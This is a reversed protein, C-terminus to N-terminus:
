VSCSYKVQNGKTNLASVLDKINQCKAANVIMQANFDAAGPATHKYDTPFWNKSKINNEGLKEWQRAIYNYHDIFPIKMEEAVLKMYGGFRGSAPVKGKNFSFNPTNSMLVPTAGKDLVQKAMQRIYWPFTHVIENGVKVTENGTGVVSGKKAVTNPGGTDNHGFEILVYDGKRVNKILANWRGDRWFTRASQGSKAQNNVPVSFYDGLYKGWGATKGNNAGNNDATSDGAIYITGIKNAGANNNNNANNPPNKPPLVVNNNNNNNNNKPPSPAPAPAAANNKATNGNNNNNSKNNTTGPVCQHYWDSLVKCTYGNVCCNEGKFNVGGCQAYAGNCAANALGVISLSYAIINIFKM